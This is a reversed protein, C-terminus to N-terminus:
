TACHKGLLYTARLEICIILIRHLPSSIWCAYYITVFLYAYSVYSCAKLITVRLWSSNYFHRPGHNDENLGLIQPIVLLQYLSTLPVAQVVWSQMTGLLFM